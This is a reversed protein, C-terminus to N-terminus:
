PTGDAAAIAQVPARALAERRQALAERGTLWTGVVGCAGVLLIGALSLADPLHNFVLWGGLAAFGIQLYLFPTLVAVPARMYALILLFHGSSSFVGMLLMGLWAWGPLPQWAMPLGASLLVLGVLGTYFHMTGADETLSMRRTLVQFATNAAVLLLPLLMAWQFLAHGPRIVILTGVFGGAVSLWRLRSVQEKLALAAVLTLLLPTIMVIATFEGVHMVQLSFYGIVSCAVLLLGRLLQALPMGTHLLRVGQSPWLLLATAVAQVLYRVWLAMVVPAVTSVLKTTTDLAGFGAVALVVFGIGAFPGPRARM